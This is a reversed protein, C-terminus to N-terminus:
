FIKALGLFGRGFIGLQSYYYANGKEILKITRELEAQVDLGDVQDSNSIDQLIGELRDQIIFLFPSQRGAYRANFILVNLNSITVIYRQALYSDPAGKCFAIAALEQEAQAFFKDIVGFYQKKDPMLGCQRRYMDQKCQNVLDSYSAHSAMVGLLLLTAIIKKM